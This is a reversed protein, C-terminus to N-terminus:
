SDTACRELTTRATAATGWGFTATLSMFVIVAYRAIPMKCIEKYDERLSKLAGRAHEIAFLFSGIVVSLWGLLSTQIAYWIVIGSADARVSNAFKVSEKDLGAYKISHSQKAHKDSYYLQMVFGLFTIEETYRLYSNILDRLDRYLHHNLDHHDLFYQRVSERLDFLKDRARDRLTPKIMFHWSVMLLLLGLGFLFLQM